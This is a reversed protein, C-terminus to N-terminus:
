AGGGSEHHVEGGEVHSPAYQGHNPSTLRPTPPSVPPSSSSVSSTSPTSPAITGTATGQVSSEGTSESASRRKSRSRLAPATAIARLTPVALIAKGQASVGAATTSPSRSRQGGSKVLSGVALGVGLGAAVVVALLALSRRSDVVRRKNSRERGGLESSQVSM